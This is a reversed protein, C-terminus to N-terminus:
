MWCRVDTLPEEMGRECCGWVLGPVDSTPRYWHCPGSLVRREMPVHEHPGMGVAFGGWEGFSLMGCGGPESAQQERPAFCGWFGCPAVPLGLKEQSFEEQGHCPLLM